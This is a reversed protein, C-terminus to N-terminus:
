AFSLLIHGPYLHQLLVIKATYKGDSEPLNEKVPRQVGSGNGDMKVKSHSGFM